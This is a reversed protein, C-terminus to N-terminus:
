FHPYLQLMVGNRAVFLSRGQEGLRFHVQVRDMGRKHIWTHGKRPFTADKVMDSYYNSNWPIMETPIKGIRLKNTCEAVIRNVACFEVLEEQDLGKARHAIIVNTYNRTAQLKGYRTWYLSIRAHDYRSKLHCATESPQNRMYEWCERWYPSGSPIMETPFINGLRKELDKPRNKGLPVPQYKEKVACVDKVYWLISKPGSAPIGCVFFPLVCNLPDEYEIAECQAIFSGEEDEKAMVSSGASRNDNNAEEEESIDSYMTVFDPEEAVNRQTSEPKLNEVPVILFMSDPSDYLAASTGLDQFGDSSLDDVLEFSFMCTLPDYSASPPPTDLTTLDFNLPPLSQATITQEGDVLPTPLEFNLSSFSPLSGGDYTPFKPDYEISQIVQELEREVLDCWDNEEFADQKQSPEEEPRPRKYSSASHSPQPASVRVEKSTVITPWTRKRNWAEM